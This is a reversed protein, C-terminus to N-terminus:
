VKTWLIVEQGGISQEDGVLLPLFLVNSIAAIRSQPLGM